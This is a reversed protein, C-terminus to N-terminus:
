RSKGGKSKESGKSKVEEEAIEQPQEEPESEEDLNLPKIEIVGSKRNGSAGKKGGAKKNVTGSYNETATSYTILALLRKARINVRDQKFVDDLIQVIEEIQKLLIHFDNLRELSDSNVYM